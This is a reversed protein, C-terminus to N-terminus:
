ELNDAFPLTSTQSCTSTPYGRFSWQFAVPVQGGYRPHNAFLHKGIFPQEEMYGSPCIPPSELVAKPIAPQHPLFFMPSPEVFGAKLNQIATYDQTLRNVERLRLKLMQLITAFIIPHQSSCILCSIYIEQYTTPAWHVNWEKGM